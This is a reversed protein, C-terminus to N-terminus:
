YILARRLKPYTCKLFKEVDLFRRTTMQFQPVMGTFNAPDGGLAITEFSCTSITSSSNKPVPSQFNSLNFERQLFTNDAFLPNTTMSSLASGNDFASINQSSVAQRQGQGQTITEDSDTIEVVSSNIDLHLGKSGLYEVVDNSDFWEGDVGSYELIDVIGKPVPNEPEPVPFPGMSGRNAWWAPRESSADIGARRYHLGADGVHYLPVTWLELNDRATRRMVDQFLRLMTPAKIFCFAFTCLRQLDEPRSGPNMLLRYSEELSARILRRVFSTEYHNYTLPLPLENGIQPENVAMSPRMQPDPIGYQQTGGSVLDHWQAVDVESDVTADQMGQCEGYCPQVTKVKTFLPTPGPADWAVMPLKEEQKSFFNLGSRPDTSVSDIQFASQYDLLPLPETAANLETSLGQGQESSTGTYELLARADTSSWSDTDPLSAQEIQNSEPSEHEGNQALDHLQEVTDGYDVSLSTHTSGAGNVNKNLESFSTGM